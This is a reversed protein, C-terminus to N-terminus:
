QAAGLIAQDIADHRVKVIDSLYFRDDIDLGYSDVTQRLAFPFQAEVSERSVPVSYYGTSDDGVIYDDTTWLGHYDEGIMDLALTNTANLM